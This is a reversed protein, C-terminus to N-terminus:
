AHDANSLLYPVCKRQTMRVYMRQMTVLTRSMNVVLISPPSYAYSESGLTQNNRLATLCQATAM